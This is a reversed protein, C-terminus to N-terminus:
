LVGRLGERCETLCHLVIPVAPLGPGVIPLSSGLSAIAQRSGSSHLLCAGAEVQGESIRALAQWYALVQGAM